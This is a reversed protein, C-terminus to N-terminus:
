ARRHWSRQIRSTAAPKKLGKKRSLELRGRKRTVKMGCPLEAIRGGREGKLLREVALLHIMEVRRLDGRSQLIWERLARRRVAAPAQLLVEVSLSPLKTEDNKGASQGAFEL